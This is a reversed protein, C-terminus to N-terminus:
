SITTFPNKINPVTKNNLSSNSGSFFNFAQANLDQYEQDGRWNQIVYTGSKVFTANAFSYVLLFVVILVKKM